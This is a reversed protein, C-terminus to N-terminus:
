KKPLEFTGTKVYMGRSIIVIKQANLLATKAKNFESKLKDQIYEMPFSLSPIKGFIRVGLYAM